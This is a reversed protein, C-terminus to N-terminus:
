NIIGYKKMLRYFNRESMQAIKAAEKRNGASILLAQNIRYREDFMKLVDPKDISESVTLTKLFSRMENLDKKVERLKQSNADIRDFFAKYDM